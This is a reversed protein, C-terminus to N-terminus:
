YRCINLLVREANQINYLTNKYMYFANKYHVHELSNQVIFKWVEFKSEFKCYNASIEWKEELILYLKWTMTMKGWILFFAIEQSITDFNYQYIYYQNKSVAIRIAWM